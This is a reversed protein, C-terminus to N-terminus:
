REGWPCSFTCGGLVPPSGSGSWEGVAPRQHFVPKPGFGVDSGLGQHLPPQPFLLARRIDLRRVAAYAVAGRAVKARRAPSVIASRRLSPDQRRSLSFAARAQQCTRERQDRGFRRERFGQLTCNYPCILASAQPAGSGPEFDFDAVSLAVEVFAGAYVLAPLRVDGALIEVLQRWRLRLRDFFRLGCSLGRLRSWVSQRSPLWFRDQASGSAAFFRAADRSNTRRQCEVFM